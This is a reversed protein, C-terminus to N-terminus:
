AIVATAETTGRVKPLFFFTEEEEGKRYSFFKQKVKSLFLFFSSIYVYVCVCSRASRLPASELQWTM